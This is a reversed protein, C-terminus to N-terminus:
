HFLELLILLSVFVRQTQTGGHFGHRLLIRFLLTHRPGHRRPLGEERRRGNYRGPTVQRPRSVLRLARAGLVPLRLGRLPRRCAPRLLLPPSPGLSAFLSLQAQVEGRAPWTIDTNEMVEDDDKGAM